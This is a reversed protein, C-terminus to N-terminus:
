KYRSHKKKTKMPFYCDRLETENNLIKFKDFIRLSLLQDFLQSSLLIKVVNKNEVNIKLM